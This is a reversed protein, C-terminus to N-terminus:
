KKFKIEKNEFKNCATTNGMRFNYEEKYNPNKNLPINLKCAKYVSDEDEKSYKNINWHVCDQCRFDSTTVIRGEWYGGQDFFSKYKKQFLIFKHEKCYVMVYLTGDSYNKDYNKIIKCIKKCFPCRFDQNTKM